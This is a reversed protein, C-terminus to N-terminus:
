QIAFKRWNAVDKFVTWDRGQFLFSEAWRRRALGELHKHDKGAWDYTEMIQSAKLLEGHDLIHDQIGLEVFGALQEHFRGAGRNYTFSVLASFQDPSLFAYDKVYARVYKAGERELDEMLWQDAKEQSCTDGQQVPSGDDYKIRGWGITWVGVSDQYARLFCGEFHKVLELGSASIVFKDPLTPWSDPDKPPLVSIPPPLPIPEPNKVSPPTIPLPIVPASPQSLGLFDLIKQWFSM